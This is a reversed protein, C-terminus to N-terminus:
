GVKKVSLEVKYFDRYNLKYNDCYMELDKLKLERENLLDEILESPVKKRNLKTITKEISVIDEVKEKAIKIQRSNYDFMREASGIEISVELARNLEEIDKDTAIGIYNGLRTKDVSYIQECLVQSETLLGCEKYNLTVHTPIPKKSFKSTIPSVLVVPSYKNALNNSVVVIPRIGNQESGVGNEFKVLYIQGRKIITSM